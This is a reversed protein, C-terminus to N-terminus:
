RAQYKLTTKKFHVPIEGLPGNRQKGVIIEDEGTPLGFEDVPQYLLLVTNAHAEIDGSEKLHLMTPKDNINAPRRLQSLALVRLNQDKALQRLSNAVNAVQDRTERGPAKVLRLYDVIVLRIGYRQKYLRARALLERTTLEPSDDIYLLHKEAIAAADEVFRPWDEIEKPNRIALATVDTAAALERRVLQEKTMELSFFLAPEDIGTSEMAVQLGFATKGRGPLAGVVWLEADRIGGTMGDLRDIGTPTGVVKSEYKREIAMQNLVEPTIEKISQAEAKVANAQISWIGDLAGNLCDLTTETPNLLRERCAAATADLQRRRSADRVLAIYHKLNPRDPVGDILGAVYGIDGVAQLEKNRDLADCLTITDVSGSAEMLQAMRFFIKRNSDLGFDEARLTTAVEHYALNDLLIGGLISREADSKFFAVNNAISDITETEM